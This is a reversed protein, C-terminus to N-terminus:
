VDLTGGVALTLLRVQQLRRRHYSSIAASLRRHDEGTALDLLVALEEAARPLHDIEKLRVRRLSEGATAIAHELNRNPAPFCLGSFFMEATAAYSEPSEIVSESDLAISRMTRPRRALALKMLHEHWLYIDRLSAPTIDPLMYGIQAGTLLLREGVLRNVSDRVPAISVDFDRAIRTIVIESGPRYLGRLIDSRLQTYVRDTAIALPAM